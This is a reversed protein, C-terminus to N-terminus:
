IIFGFIRFKNNEEIIDIEILTNHITENNNRNKYSIKFKLYYLNGKINKDNTVKEMGKEHVKSVILLQLKDQLLQQINHGTIKKIYEFVSINGTMMDDILISIKNEDLIKLEIKASLMNKIKLSNKTKLNNFFEKAFNIIEKKSSNEGTDGTIFSLLFLCFLVMLIIKKM